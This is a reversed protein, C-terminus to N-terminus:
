EVRTVPASPESKRSRKRTFFNKVDIITSLLVPLLLMGNLVGCVVVMMYMRFYYKKFVRSDALTLVSLGIVKTITIGFIVSTFVQRLADRAREDGTGNAKAFFRVYHGCFEVSIGAAIILNVISLGNLMIDLPQMLGLVLVVINTATLSIVLSYFVNGLYLTTIVFIAALSLGILEYADHIITLYQEFYVYTLNYVWVDVGTKESIWEAAALNQKYSDIYRQQTPNSTGTVMYSWATIEDGYGSSNIKVAPTSSTVTPIPDTDISFQGRYISGGGYSCSTGASATAFMSFLSMYEDEPVPPVTESSPLCTDDDSRLTTYTENGTEIPAYAGESDVRCCESDPNVFGWFDDMWSYTTGPSIHTVSEDGHNALANMINPISYTGCIDKSKCFITEVSEDNLSWSAPNRGYSTEVIFYVPSGTALYVDLANFYEIMYSNSPMAEKQPLGQDLTEMSYISWLTWALFALLVIMKVLKHTLISAYVDVCYDLVQTLSHKEPTVSPRVDDAAPTKPELSVLPESSQQITEVQATVSSARKFIIDYKGSLERRKDLTLVSLFLTMQFCFNIAVACCAM